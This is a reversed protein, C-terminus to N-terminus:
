KVLLEGNLLILYFLSSVILSIVVTVVTNKIFQGKTFEKELNSVVTILGLKGNGYLTESIKETLITLHKLQEAQVAQINRLENIAAGNTGSKTQELLREILNKIETNSVREAM